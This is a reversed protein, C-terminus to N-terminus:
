QHHHDRPQHRNGESVEVVKGLDLDPFVDGKEGAVQQHRDHQQETGRGGPPKEEEEQSEPKEGARDPQLLRDMAGGLQMERSALKQGVHVAHIGPTLVRLQDDQEADDGHETAKSAGPLLRQM